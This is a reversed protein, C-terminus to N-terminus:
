VINIIIHVLQMQVKETGRYLIKELFIQKKELFDLFSLLWLSIFSSVQHLINTLTTTLVIEQPNETALTLLIDANYLFSRWTGWNEYNTWDM